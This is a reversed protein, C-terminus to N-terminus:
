GSLTASGVVGVFSLNLVGDSVTSTFTRVLANMVGAAAYVDFDNLLLVNEGTVDFKRQNAAFVGTEVFHLKLTYTGNSVPIAYNFNGYRRSLYMLDDTTNNVTTYATSATGGSYYQDAGWVLGASDTRGAAAGVDIRIAPQPKTKATGAATWASGGADTVARVRFYYTTNAQLGTVDTVTTNKAVTKYKSGYFLGNTSWQVQFGSENVSKDTWVVKVTNHNITLALAEGPAIPKSAAQHRTLYLDYAGNDVAGAFVFKDDGSAAIAGTWGAVGTEPNPAVFTTDRSGDPNFRAMRYDRGLVVVHGSKQVVLDEAGWQHLVLGAMGDGDFTKDPTGDANYRVVNTDRYPTGEVRSSGATVIKGDPLVTVADHMDSGGWDRQLRGDGDFTSDLQGYGDFRLVFSDFGWAASLRGVVVIKNGPALAMGLPSDVPDAGPRPAAYARGDYSFTTDPSGNANLRAALVAQGPANSAAGFSIKNDAGVAVGVVDYIKWDVPALWIGNGDFTNDMSGDSNLRVVMATNSSTAGNVATAAAMVIRGDGTLTVHPARAHAGAVAITTIGDGGGFTFDPTGSANFRTVFFADNAGSKGGWTAVVVKGDKQVVVDSGAASYGGPMEVTLKGDNSFSPDLAGPTYAFLQRGELAEITSRAA